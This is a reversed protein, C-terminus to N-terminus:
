TNRNQMDIIREAQRRGEADIIEQEEDDIGDEEYRDLDGKAEYDRFIQKTLLIYLFKSKSIKTSIRATWKKRQSTKRSDKRQTEKTHKRENRQDGDRGTTCYGRNTVNSFFLFYDKKREKTTTAM